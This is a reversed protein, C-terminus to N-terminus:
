GQGRLRAVYARVENQTPATPAQPYPKTTKDPLTRKKRGLAQAVREILVMQQAGFRAHDPDGGENMYTWNHWSFSETSGCSCPPTTFVSDDAGAEESFYWDSSVLHRENGCNACVHDAVGGTATLLPM